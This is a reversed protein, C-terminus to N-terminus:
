AFNLRNSNMKLLNWVEKKLLPNALLEHHHPLQLHLQDAGITVLIFRHATQGMTVIVEYKSVDQLLDDCLNQPYITLDIAQFIACILQLADEHLIAPDTVVIGKIQSNFYIPLMAMKEQVNARLSWAQIGLLSLYNTDM